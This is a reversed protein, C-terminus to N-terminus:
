ARVRIVPLALSYFSASAVGVHPAAWERLDRRIDDECLYSAETRLCHGDLFWVVLSGHIARAMFEAFVSDFSNDFM